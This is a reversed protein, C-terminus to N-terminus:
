KIIYIDPDYHYLRKGIKELVNQTCKKDNM